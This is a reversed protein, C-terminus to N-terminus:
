PRQITPVGPTPAHTTVISIQDLRHRSGLCGLRRHAGVDIRDYPCGELARAYSRAQPHLAVRVRRKRATM